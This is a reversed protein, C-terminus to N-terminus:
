VIGIVGCAVRGGAHGTTLSDNFGGKGLDDEGEHVVIARGIICHAGSLSIVNDKFNINAVGDPGAVINGLDGVHRNSDEPAGHTKNLPNFHGAASACGNSLDGKAHVHFGHKGPKLGSISGEISVTKDDIQTFTVVGSVTDTKLVVNASPKNEACVVALVMALVLFKM